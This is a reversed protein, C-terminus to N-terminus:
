VSAYTLFNYNLKFTEIMVKGDEANLDGFEWSKPWAHVVNWVVLPDHKENLLTVLLDIPQFKFNEFADQCWKTIGSKGPVYLGRKLVLDPTKSRLPVSHEFNNVGCEKFTEVEFEMSLGSVSQFKLDEPTGGPLGQFTVSFHFNVPHYKVM